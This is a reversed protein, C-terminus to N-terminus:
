KGFITELMTLAIVSNGWYSTHAYVAGLQPVLNNLFDRRANLNKAEIQFDLRGCFCNADNASTPNPTSRFLFPLLFKNKLKEHDRDATTKKSETIANELYAAAFAEVRIQNANELLKSDKSHRGTSGAIVKASLSGIMTAFRKLKSNEGKFKRETKSTLKADMSSFDSEIYEEDEGEEDVEEDAHASLKDFFHNLDDEEEQEDDDSCSSDESEMLIINHPSFTNKKERTSLCEEVGATDTTTVLPNMEIPDELPPASAASLKKDLTETSNRSSSITKKSIFGKLKGFSKSWKSTSSSNVDDGVFYDTKEKVKLERQEEKVSEKVNETVGNNSSATSAKRTSKVSKANKKDMFRSEADILKTLNSLSESLFNNIPNWSDAPISDVASSNKSTSRSSQTLNNVQPNSDASLSPLHLATPFFPITVNQFERRKRDKKLNKSKKKNADTLTESKDKREFETGSDQSLSKTQPLINNLATTFTESAFLPEIRFAIPDDPHFINLVPFLPLKWNVQPSINRKQLTMFSGLPSGLLFLADIMNPQVLPVEMSTPRIKNGTLVEFAIASGLSHAVVAFKANATCPKNRLLKVEWNIKSAVFTTLKDGIHPTMYYLIDGFAKNM